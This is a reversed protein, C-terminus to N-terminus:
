FWWFKHMVDSFHTGVRIRHILDGFKTILMNERVMTRWLAVLRGFLQGYYFIILIRQVGGTPTTDWKKRHNTKKTVFWWSKSTKLNVFKRPVVGIM